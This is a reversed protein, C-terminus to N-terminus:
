RRPLSFAASMYMLNLALLVGLIMQQRPDLNAVLHVFEEYKTRTRTVPEIPTPVCPVEVILVDGQPGEPQGVFCLTVRLQRFEVRYCDLPPDRRLLHALSVAASSSNAIGFFVRGARLRQQMPLIAGAVRM